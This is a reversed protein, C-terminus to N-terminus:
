FRKNGFVNNSFNTKIKPRLFFSTDSHLSTLLLSDIFNNMLINEHTHQKKFELGARYFLKSGECLQKWKLDALLIIGHLNYVIVKDDNSLEISLNEQQLLVEPKQTFFGIGSKSIDRVSIETKNHDLHHIYAKIKPSKIRIYGRRNIMTFNGGGVM